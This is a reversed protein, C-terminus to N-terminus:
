KVTVVPFSSKERPNVPDNVPAKNDAQWYVENHIRHNEPICAFVKVDFVLEKEEGPELRDINWTVHQRGDIVGYRGEFDTSVFSTREPLYNRIRLEKLPEDSDNRIVLRYAIEEGPVATKGGNKITGAEAQISVAVQQERPQSQEPSAASATEPRVDTTREPEKSREGAPAAQTPGATETEPTESQAPLTEAPRSEQTELVPLSGSPRGPRWSGGSGHGNYDGAATTEGATSEEPAGTSEPASTEPPSSEEPSSTETEATSEEAESSSEETQATSGETESTSEETESTSEQTESTPEETETTSEETESTPEETETTSEQTESTSEETEDTSEETESSSEESEDTSEETESTSEETEGHRPILWGFNEEPCGPLMLSVRTRETVSAFGRQITFILAISSYNEIGQGFEIHLGINSDTDYSLTYTGIRPGSTGRELVPGTSAVSALGEIRGLDWFIDDGAEIGDAIPRINMSLQYKIVENWGIEKGDEFFSVDEHEPRDDKILDNGLKLWFSDTYVVEAISGSQNLLGALYEIKSMQPISFGADELAESDTAARAQRSALVARGGTIKVFGANGAAALSTSAPTNAIAAILVSGTLTVAVVCTGIGRRFASKSKVYRKKM